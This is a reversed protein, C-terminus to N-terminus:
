FHIMLLNRNYHRKHKRMPHFPLVLLAQYLHLVLFLRLNSDKITFLTFTLYCVCIQMSIEAPRNIPKNSQLINKKRVEGTGAILEYDKKLAQTNNLARTSVQSSLIRHIFMHAPILKCIYTRHSLLLTCCTIKLTIWTVCTTVHHEAASSLTM